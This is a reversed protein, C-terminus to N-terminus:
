DLQSHDQSARLVEGSRRRNWARPPRMNIVGFQCQQISANQQQQEALFKPNRGQWDRDGTRHVGSSVNRPAGRDAGDILSAAQRQTPTNAHPGYPLHNHSKSRSRTVYSIHDSHRGEDLGRGDSPFAGAMENGLSSHQGIIGHRPIPNCRGGVFENVPPPSFVVMDAPLINEFDAVGFESCDPEQPECGKDVHFPMTPTPMHPTLGSGAIEACQLDFALIHMTPSSEGSLNSSESSVLTPSNNDFGSSTNRSDVPNMASTGHIRCSACYSMSTGYTRCNARSLCNENSVRGNSNDMESTNGTSQCNVITTEIPIEGQQIAMRDALTKQLAFEDQTLQKGSNEGFTCLVQGPNYEDPFICIEEKSNAREVEPTTAQRFGRTGDEKIDHPQTDRQDFGNVLRSDNPQRKSADVIRHSAFQRSLKHHDELTDSHEIFGTASTTHVNALRPQRYANPADYLQNDGTDSISMEHEMVEQECIAQGRSLQQNVAVMDENTIYGYDMMINDNHYIEDAVVGTASPPVHQGLQPRDTTVQDQRNFSGEDILENYFSALGTASIDVEDFYDHASGNAGNM